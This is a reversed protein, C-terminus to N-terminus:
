PVGWTATSNQFITSALNLLSHVSNDSQEDRCPGCRSVRFKVIVVLGPLETLSLEEIRIRSWPRHCCSSRSTQHPSVIRSRLVPTM